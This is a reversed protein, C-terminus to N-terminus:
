AKTADAVQITVQKVKSDKFGLACLAQEWQERKKLDRVTATNEVEIIITKTTSTKSKPM